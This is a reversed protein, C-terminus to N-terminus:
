NNKAKHYMANDTGLGFIDLRNASWATAGASSARPNLAARASSDYLNSAAQANTGFLPLANEVFVISAVGALMVRRSIRNDPLGPLSGPGSEHKDM